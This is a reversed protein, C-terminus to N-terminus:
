NLRANTAARVLSSESHEEKQAMNQEAMVVYRQRTRLRKVARENDKSSSTSAWVNFYQPTMTLGSDDLHSLDRVKVLGDFERLLEREKEDADALAKEYRAEFDEWDFSPFDGPTDPTDSGRGKATQRDIRPEPTKTSPRQSEDTGSSM